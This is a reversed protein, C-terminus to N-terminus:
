VADLLGLNRLVGLAQALSHSRTGGSDIVRTLERTGPDPQEWRRSIEAHIAVDADSVDGQRAALRERVVDPDAQCHMLCPAIAWRRAADLFLRRQSQERFTADILVRKGEFLLNEARRVCEAYTRENWDKKYLNEGFAAPLRDHGARGALEKRVQDSRIVTFGAHEALDAALTSKGTGPLGSVLVLGPRCDPRELEALAFLWHARALKLAEHRSSESREPDMAQMGRVKGRVMSRYSLYFPLLARGEDEKAAALYADSFAKALAGHGRVSLEMALFAIDAIPDAHRYRTDFEICDVIVWNGPPDQDPFWYIHELRLDGHTDRPVGRATRDDILPRLRALTTETLFVLRDRVRRSLTLGVQPAAQDFNERVNRAVSNFSAGASIEPGSDAGAHFETLRGALERLPEAGLGGHGLRSGLTNDDPLRKMKVAWEVARGTGGMRIAGNEHTVPVVELYVDPALRRNLRVEEGCFYHRRELTSYDVFGTSVPRKIKYAFSDVLFVVSIQTQRVEVAAVPDPYASPDSLANILEATNVLKAERSM